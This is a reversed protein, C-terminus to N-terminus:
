LEDIGYYLMKMKDITKESHFHGFYWVKYDLKREIEELWEETSQDVTNQDVQKLFLETPEYRLPCTHSLVGDVKWNVSDLKEEVRKKIAEDPQEDDFWLYGHYGMAQMSLRYHKDVSYAGGIVIYKKNNFTYIEGDIGFYLNPFEKQQLAKGGCFDVVKYGEVTEARAEHNGHICFITKDGLEKKIKNKLISSHITDTYRYHSNKDAPTVSYNVGSDGLIVMNECAKLAVAIDRYNGHKDGTVFWKADEPISRKKAYAFAKEGAGVGQPGGCNGGVYMKEYQNSTKKSM